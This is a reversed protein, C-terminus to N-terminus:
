DVAELVAAESGEGPRSLELTVRGDAGVDCCEVASFAEVDICGLPEEDMNSSFYYLMTTPKLVFFRRQWKKNPICLYGSKVAVRALRTAYPSSSGRFHEVQRPPPSAGGLTLLARCVCSAPSRPNCCRVASELLSGLM